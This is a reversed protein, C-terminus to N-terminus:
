HDWRSAPHLLISCRGWLPGKRHLGRFPQRKEPIVPLYGISM